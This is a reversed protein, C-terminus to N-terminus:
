WAGKCQHWAHIALGPACCCVTTTTGTSCEDASMCVEVNRTWLSWELQCASIPHIAHARRIEDVSAESIGLYKVKGEEVLAQWRTKTLGHVIRSGGVPSLRKNAVGNTHGMRVWAHLLM